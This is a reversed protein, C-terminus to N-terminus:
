GERDALRDGTTTTRHIRNFEDSGFGAGAVGWGFCIRLELQDVKPEAPLKKLLLPWPLALGSACGHVHCGFDDLVAVGRLAVEPTEPTVGGGGGQRRGIRQAIVSWLPKIKYKLSSVAALVSVLNSTKNSASRMGQAAHQVSRARSLVWAVTVIMIDDDHNSDDSGPM